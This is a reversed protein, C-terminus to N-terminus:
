RGDGDITTLHAKRWAQIGKVIFLHEGPKVLGLRRAERVLAETSSSAAVRRRLADREVRLARVEALKRDLDGRKDVYTKLPQVYLFACVVTVGAALWRLVLRSRAPRRRKRLAAM